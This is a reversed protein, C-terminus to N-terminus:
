RVKARLKQFIFIGALSKITLYLLGSARVRQIHELSFIQEVSLLPYLRVKVGKEMHKPKYSKSNVFELIMEKKSNLVERNM